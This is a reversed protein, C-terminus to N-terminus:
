AGAVTAQTLSLHGDRHTRSGPSLHAAHQQGEVAVRSHPATGAAADPLRSRVFTRRSFRQQCSLKHCTIKRITIVLGDNEVRGVAMTHAIIVHEMRKSERDVLDTLVVVHHHENTWISRSLEDFNTNDIQHPPSSAIAWAM